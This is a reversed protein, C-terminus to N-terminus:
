VLKQIVCKIEKSRSWLYFFGSSLMVEIKGDIILYRDHCTQFKAETNRSVNWKPNVLNVDTFVDTNTRGGGNYNQIYEVNLSTDPLIAFLNTANSSEHSFYMDQILIKKATSLLSTLYSILYYRSADIECTISYVKDIEDKNINFYPFCRDVDNTTLILKYFTSQSLNELSEYNGVSLFPAILDDYIHEPLNHSAKCNIIQAANTEIPFSIKNLLKEYTRIEKTTPSEISHFRKYLSFLKNSLVLEKVESV